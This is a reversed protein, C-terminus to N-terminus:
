ARQWADLTRPLRTGSGGAGLAVVKDPLDAAAEAASRYTGVCEDDLWAEWLGAAPAALVIQLEGAPTELRYVDPEPVPIGATVKATAPSPGIVSALGARLDAVTSARPAAPSRTYLTM